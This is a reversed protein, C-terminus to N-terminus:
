ERWGAPVEGGAAFSGTRGIHFGEQAIAFALVAGRVLIGVTIGLVLPIMGLVTLLIRRVDVTSQAARSEAREIWHAPVPNDVTTMRAPYRM